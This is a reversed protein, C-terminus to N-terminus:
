RATSGAEVAAGGVDSEVLLANWAVWGLALVVAVAVLLKHHRKMGRAAPTAGHHGAKSM